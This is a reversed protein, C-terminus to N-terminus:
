KDSITLDRQAIVQDRDNVFEILFRGAAQRGFEHFPLDQEVSQQDPQLQIIRTGLPITDTDMLRHIKGIIQRTAFPEAAVLRASLQQGVFFETQDDSCDESASHTDCIIIVPLQAVDSTCDSFLTLCLLTLLLGSHQTSLSYRTGSKLPEVGSSPLEPHPVFTGNALLPSQRDKNDPPLPLRYKM